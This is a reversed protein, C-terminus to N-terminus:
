RALTSKGSGSPGRLIVMTKVNKEIHRKVVEIHAINFNEGSMAQATTSNNQESNTSLESSTTTNSDSSSVPFKNVENKDRKKVAAVQWGGGSGSDSEDNTSSLVSINSSLEDSSISISQTFVPRTAEDEDYKSKISNM